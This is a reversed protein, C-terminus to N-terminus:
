FVFSLYGMLGQFEYEVDIRPSGEQEDYEISVNNYGLGIGVTKNFYYDVSLHIDVLSGQWDATDIIFLEFGVRYFLRERLTLSLYQGIVPVPFTFNEDDSGAGEWLPNGMDDVGSLVLTTDTLVMDADRFEFVFNDGGM